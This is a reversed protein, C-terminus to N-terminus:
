PAVLTLVAASCAPLTIEFQGKTGRIPEPKYPTLTGDAAVSSGGYSIAEKESPSAASLRRVDGHSRTPETIVTARAAQTLSKNVVVVRLKKDAGLTAHAAVNSDTKIDVPILKGQGADKFLLMAYYLARASYTGSNQEFGIATYGRMKFGTHFNIGAVGHEAVDFLFDSGWVAAAFVDSVGDTGGMSASNCEAMRYPMGAKRADAMHSQLIKQTKDESKAGLLSEITAPPKSQNSTPYFHSTAFAFKTKFDTLCPAFWAADNSTTAPGTLKATPNKALIVDIANKLEGKYQAYDYGKARLQKTDKAYHDPENGVEFAQVSKGGVQLAYAIEGATLAPTNSALNVGHIVQWQIARAFGYFADIKEPTIAYTSKGTPSEAPAQQWQCLEVQNGGVRLVGAGLNRHLQVLPANDARFHTETLASKEYSLGLFDAPITIGPKDCHLTILVPAPDGGTQPRGSDAAAAMSLSAGLLPAALLAHTIRAFRRSPTQTM